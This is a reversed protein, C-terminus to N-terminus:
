AIRTTVCLRCISHEAGLDFVMVTQDNALEAFWMGEGLVYCLAAAVPENIIDVRELGAQIGAEITRQRQFDSFQAPVTIVAHRIHSQLREEAGDLLKRIIFSSTDVPTYVQSDIVWCKQTDGMFRKAHQVVRDPQAVANRLAETGVVIEDGDFLVVSPTTMEGESNPCAVPQGQPTLYSLCSYTTGLDIGVAYLPSVERQPM